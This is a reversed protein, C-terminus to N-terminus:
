YVQSVAGREHLLACIFGEKQMMETPNISNALCRGLFHCRLTLPEANGQCCCNTTQYYLGRYNKVTYIQLRSVSHLKLPASVTFCCSCLCVSPKRLKPLLKKPITSSNFMFFSFFAFPPYSLPPPSSHIVPLVELIIFLFPSLCFCILLLPCGQCCPLLRLLYSSGGRSGKETQM